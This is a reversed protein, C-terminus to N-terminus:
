TSQSPCREALIARIRQGIRTVLLTLRRAGNGSYRRQMVNADMRFLRNKVEVTGPEYRRLLKRLKRDDWSVTELVRFCQCWPSYVPEGGTYYGHTGSVSQLAHEKAFSQCLEAAHLVNNLDCVYELVEDSSDAFPLDPEGGFSQVCTQFKDNSMPEALVAFRAFEKQAQSRSATAALESLHEPLERAANGLCLVQQKCEGGNGIWIRRVAEASARDLDDLVEPEFQTSPAIKILSGEYNQSLALVQELSPSFQDARTTKAEPGGRDPDIHLWCVRTGDLQMAIADQCHVEGALGHTKLNFRALTALDRDKEIGLVPGRGALAILDAGAGCCIDHTLKDKPFLSAKFTACYWDSAQALSRSTWLWQSPTPFRKGSRARLRAQEALLANQSESLKPRGRAFSYPPVSGSVQSDSDATATTGFSSQEEELFQFGETVLWEISANM